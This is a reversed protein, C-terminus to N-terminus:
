KSSKKAAKSSKFTSQQPLVLGKDPVPENGEQNQLEDNPPPQIEGESGIDKTALDAVTPPPSQIANEDSFDLSTGAEDSTPPAQVIGSFADANEEDQQLPPPPVSNESNISNTASAGQGPSGGQIAKLGEITDSEYAIKYYSM